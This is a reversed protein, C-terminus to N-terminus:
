DRLAKTVVETKTEGTQRALESALREGRLPPHEAGGVRRGWMQM